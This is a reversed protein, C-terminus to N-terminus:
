GMEIPNANDWPIHLVVGIGWRLMCVMVLLYDLRTRGQTVSLSAPRHNINFSNLTKFPCSLCHISNTEFSETNECRNYNTNKTLM